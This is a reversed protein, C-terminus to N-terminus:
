LFPNTSASLSEYYRDAKILDDPHVEADKVIQHVV